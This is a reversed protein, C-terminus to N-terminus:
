AQRVVMRRAITEVDSNFHYRRVGASTLGFINSFPRVCLVGEPSAHTFGWEDTEGMYAFGTVKYIKGNAHHLQAGVFLPDPILGHKDPMQHSFEERMLDEMKIRTSYLRIRAEELPCGNRGTHDPHTFLWHELVASRILERLNELGM